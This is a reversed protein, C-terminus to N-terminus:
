LDSEKLQEGAVSEGGLFTTLASWEADTPMHWGASALGRPDTAAYWNYLKVMRLQTHLLIMITIAILM